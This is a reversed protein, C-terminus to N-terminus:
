DVFPQKKYARLLTANQLPVAHRAGVLFTNNKLLVKNEKKFHYPKISAGM